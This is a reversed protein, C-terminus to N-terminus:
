AARRRHRAGGGVAGVGVPRHGDLRRVPRRVRLDLYGLADLKTAVAGSCRVVALSPQTVSGKRSSGSLEAMVLRLGVRRLAQASVQAAAAHTATSAGVPAARASSMSM